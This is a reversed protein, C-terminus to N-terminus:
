YLGKIYINVDSNFQGNFCDYINKQRDASQFDSFIYDYNKIDFIIDARNLLEVNAQFEKEAEFPNKHKLLLDINKFVKKFVNQTYKSSPENNSPQRSLYHYPVNSMSLVSEFSYRKFPYNHMIGAKQLILSQLLLSRINNWVILTSFISLINTCHQTSWNYLYLTMYHGEVHLLLFKQRPIICRFSDIDSISINSTLNSELKSQFIPPFFLKSHENKIRCYIQSFSSESENLSICNWLNEHNFLIMFNNSDEFFNNSTLDFDYYQQISSPLFHIKMDSIFENILEIFEKVISSLSNKFIIPFQYKKLAPVSIEKGFDLWPKLVFNLKYSLYQTEKNKFEKYTFLEENDQAENKIEISSFDFYNENSSVEVASATSPQRLKTALLSGNDAQTISPRSSTVVTLGSRREISFM